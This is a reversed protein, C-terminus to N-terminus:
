LNRLLGLIAQPIQPLDTGAELVFCPLERFLAALKRYCGATEGPLQAVTSPAAARFAEAQSAPRISTDVGGTPRPLLIARLPFGATTKGPFEEEVFYLAKEEGPELRDPLWASFRHHNGRRLKGTGYLSYAHPAPDPSVLCYDDGAYRLPSPLCSFTSTSKGAGGAGALLVGAEPLGVAAAHVLQLPTRSFYWHLQKLLPSGLEYQPLTSADGAWLLGWNHLRDFMGKVHPSAFCYRDAGSGTLHWAAGEEEDFKLADVFPCAAGTSSADGIYLTAQPPNNGPRVELHQFARALPLMAPGAFVLRLLHGGLSFERTILGGAAHSIDKWHGLVERCSSSSPTSEVEQMVGAPM